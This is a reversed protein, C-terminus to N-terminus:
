KRKNKNYASNPNLLERWDLDGRDLAMIIVEATAINTALPINYRDCTTMLEKAIKDEESFDHGDRPHTYMVVHIDRARVSDIIDGLLDRKPCNGPRWKESVASPYLPQVAFHWATFVIYEVGMRELSDAFGEADFADAFEYITQPKSGDAYSSWPLVHHIFMGYKCNVLDKM